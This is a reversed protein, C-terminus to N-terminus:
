AMKEGAPPNFPADDAQDGAQMPAGIDVHLTPRSRPMGAREALRKELDLTLPSKIRRPAPSTTQHTAPAVNNPADIDTVTGYHDAPSTAPAVARYVTEFFEPDLDGISTAGNGYKRLISRVYAYGARKSRGVYLDSLARIVQAKSIM